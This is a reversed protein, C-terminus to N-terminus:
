FREYIDYFPPYLDPNNYVKPPVGRFYETYDVALREKFRYHAWAGAFAPNGGFVKLFDRGPAPDAYLAVFAPRFRALDAAIYGAYRDRIGADGVRSVEDVFWLSPFRSAHPIGTYVALPQVINTGATQMLFSSDAANALIYHGWGTRAYDAHHPFAYNPPRMAAVALFVLLVCLVENKLRRSAYLWLTLFGAPAAFGLVPLMHVSFGKMQVAVPIVAVLAMSNMFIAASKAPLPVGESFYAMIMLSLALIMPGAVAAFIMHQMSSTYLRVSDALAEGLFDPFWLFVAMAYLAVGCALAVSDFDFAVSIRRQRVYRHGLLVVALLGYHPKLLIFPVGWLLAARSLIKPVPYGMTRSFQTLTFPVLAAAILHDKQGFEYASFYTIVATYSSLIGWVNAGSMGPWRRLILATLLVSLFVATMSFILASYWLPIGAWMLLAAPVYLMYSMPPNNDFFDLTMTGGSLFLDAAHVLFAVDGSISMGAQVAFWPLLCLIFVAFPM